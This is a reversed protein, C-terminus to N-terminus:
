FPIEDDFPRDLREKRKQEEIYEEFPTLGPKRRGSRKEGGVKRKSKPWDSERYGRKM